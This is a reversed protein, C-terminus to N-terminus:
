FTCIIQQLTMIHDYANHSQITFTQPTVKKYLYGEKDVPSDCSQYHLLIKEHIKMDFTEREDSPESWVGSRTVTLM